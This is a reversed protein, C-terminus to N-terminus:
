TPSEPASPTDAALAPLASVSLAVALVLLHLLKM